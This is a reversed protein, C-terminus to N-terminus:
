DVLGSVVAFAQYVSITGTITGARNTSIIDASTHAIISIITCHGASTGVGINIGVVTSTSAGVNIGVIVDL